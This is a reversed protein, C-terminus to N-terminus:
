SRLGASEENFVSVAPLPISAASLIIRTTNSYDNPDWALSEDMWDLYAFFSVAMTESKADLDAVNVLTVSINVNLM